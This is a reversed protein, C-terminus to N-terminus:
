TAGMLKGSNNWWYRGLLVGVIPFVYESSDIAPEPCFMRYKSFNLLNCGVKSQKNGLLSNFNVTVTVPAFGYASQKYDNSFTAVNDSTYFGVKSADLQQWGQAVNKLSEFYFDTASRQKQCFNGVGGKCSTLQLPFVMSSLPTINRRAQPNDFTEVGSPLQKPNIGRGNFDDAAKQAYPAMSFTKNGTGFVGAVQDIMYDDALTYANVGTLPNRVTGVTISEGPYSNIALSDGYEGVFNFGGAGPLLGIEDSYLSPIYIASFNSFMACYTLNNSGSEYFSRTGYACGIGGPTKTSIDEQNGSGSLYVQKGWSQRWNWSENALIYQIMLSTAWYDVFDQIQQVGYQTYWNNERRSAGMLQKWAGGSFNTGPTGFIADYITTGCRDVVGEYRPIDTILDSNNYNIPKSKANAMVAKYNIWQANLQSACSQANTLTDIIKDETAISTLNDIQQSLCKTQEFVAMVYSLTVNGLQDTDNIGLPALLMGSIPKVVSSPLGAYQLLGAAGVTAISGSSYESAKSYEPLSNSNPACTAATDATSKALMRDRVMPSVSHSGLSSKDRSVEEYKETLFIFKEGSLAHNKLKKIFKGYGGMKAVYEILKDNDIYRNRTQFVDPWVQDSIGLSHRVKKIAEDYSFSGNAILSAATTIPDVFVVNSEKNIKEVRAVLEGRFSRGNSRGKTVRIIFPESGYRDPLSLIALGLENTEGRAVVKGSENTVRVRGKYIHDGPGAYAWPRVTVDAYCAEGSILANMLAMIFLIKKM